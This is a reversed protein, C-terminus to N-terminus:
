VRSPYMTEAKVCAATPAATPCRAGGASVALVVLALLAIFGSYNGMSCFLNALSPISSPSHNRVVRLQPLAFAVRSFTSVDFRRM